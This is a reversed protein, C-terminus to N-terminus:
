KAAGTAAAGSGSAGSSPTSKLSAQAQQALSLHETVVALTKAALEKLEPDTARTQARELMRHAARHDALGGQAMYRRDFQEGSLSGLRKVLARHKADPASPLTVGKKEALQALEEQSKTHDDVMRQAFAKVEDSGSKEQALKGAEIEGLNALALERVIRQDATSLKEGTASKESSAARGSTGSAGSAASSDTQTAAPQASQAFAVTTPMALAFLIAPLMHAYKRLSM